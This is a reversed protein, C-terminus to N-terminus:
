QLANLEIEYKGHKWNSNKKGTRKKAVESRKQRYSLSKNRCEKSCRINHPRSDGKFPSHCEVCIKDVLRLKRYCTSCYHKAVTLKVRNCSVCPEPARPPKIPKPSFQLTFLRGDKVMHCKRCLWEFDNVDRYYKQSINALDIPPKIGCDECFHPKPKRSKVWLHLAYLGVKDGKWMGNKENLNVGKVM